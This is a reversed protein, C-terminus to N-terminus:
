LNVLPLLYISVLWANYIRFTTRDEEVSRKSLSRVSVLVGLIGPALYGVAVSGWFMPCLYSWGTVAFVISWRAPGDGFILPITRRGAAFDGAQDYMDQTHVTTCVVAGVLFLWPIMNPKIPSQLAVELAGSAFCTFGCGNLINRLIWSVDGGKLDNYLYGFFVLSICQSTGGGLFFSAVLALPYVALALKKVQAGTLRGAQMPRWPKNLRDEEIASAQRQNNVAFALLNTWSWLLIIPIRSVLIMSQSGHSSDTRAKLSPVGNFLAFATSPIVMTKLDNYTFLWLTYVHYSLINVIVKSQAELSLITDLM